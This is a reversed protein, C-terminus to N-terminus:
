QNIVMKDALMRATALLLSAGPRNAEMPSRLAEGGGTLAVAFLGRMRRCDIHRRQCAEQRSVNKRGLMALTPVHIQLVASSVRRYDGHHESHGISRCGRPPVGPCETCGFQPVKAADNPQGHGASREKQAFGLVVAPVGRGGKARSCDPDLHKDIVRVAKYFAGHCSSGIAADVLYTVVLRGPANVPLTAEDVGEAVQPQDAVSRGQPRAQLQSM